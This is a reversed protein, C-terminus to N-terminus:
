AGLELDGIAKVRVRFNRGALYGVPIEEIEVVRVTGVSAGGAV